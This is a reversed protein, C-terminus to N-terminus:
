QYDFSSYVEDIDKAIWEGSKTTRLPLRSSVADFILKQPLNEPLEYGIASGAGNAMAAVMFRGDGAGMDVSRIGYMDVVGFLRAMSGPSLSGGFGVSKGDCGDSVRKYCKYIIRM